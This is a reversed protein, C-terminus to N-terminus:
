LIKDLSLFGGVMYSQSLPGIAATSEHCDIHDKATSWHTTDDNMEFWYVIM